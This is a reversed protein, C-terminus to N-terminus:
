CGRGPAPRVPYRVVGTILVKCISLFCTTISVALHGPPSAVGSQISSFPTKLIFFDALESYREECIWVASLTGMCSMVEQRQYYFFQNTPLAAFLCPHALCPYYILPRARGPDSHM